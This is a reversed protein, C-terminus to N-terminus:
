QFRYARPGAQTILVRFSSKPEVHLDNLGWARNGISVTNKQNPCSKAWVREMFKEAGPLLHLAKEESGLMFAEKGKFFDYQAEWREPIVYLREGDNHVICIQRPMPLPRM